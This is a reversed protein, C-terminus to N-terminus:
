SSGDFWNEVILRDFEAFDSVNRTVLILNNAAAIAAIQGDAYSPPQGMRSLRTREKAFWAAASADYPNFWTGPM